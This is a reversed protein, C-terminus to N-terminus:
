CIWNPIQYLSQIEHVWNLNHIQGWIGGGFGIGEATSDIETFCFEM